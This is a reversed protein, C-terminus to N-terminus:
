NLVPFKKKEDEKGKSLNYSGSQLHSVSIDDVLLFCLPQNKGGNVAFTVDDTSFFLSL